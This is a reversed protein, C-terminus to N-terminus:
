DMILFCLHNEPTKTKGPSTIIVHRFNKTFMNVVQGNPKGIYKNYKKNIRKRLVDMKTDRSRDPKWMVKSDNGDGADM